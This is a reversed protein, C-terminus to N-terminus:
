NSALIPDGHKPLAFSQGTKVTVSTEKMLSDAQYRELEYEGGFGADDHHSSCSVNSIIWRQRPNIRILAKM